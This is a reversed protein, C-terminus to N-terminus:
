LDTEGIIDYKKTIRISLYYIRTICFHDIFKLQIRGFGIPREGLVVMCDLVFGYLDLM